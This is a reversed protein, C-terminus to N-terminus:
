AHSDKSKHIDECLGDIEEAISSPPSYAVLQWETQAIRYVDGILTRLLSKHGAVIVPPIKEGECFIRSREGEIRRKDTCQWQGAQPCVNGSQITTGLPAKQSLKKAVTADSPQRIDISPLLRDWLALAEDDTLTPKVKAKADDKVGSDLRIDLLPHLSNNAEGVSFFRFEHADTDNKYAPRRTLIEEGHWVGLQRPGERLMKISSFFNGLGLNAAHEKAQQRLRGPASDEQLYDHNRRAEISIRVDPIEKLYIGIASNEYEADVELFGGEVCMGMEAPIENESRSRLQGAIKNILSVNDESPMASSIYHIFLDNKMPIYSHISYSVSSKAGFIIKQGPIIGDVVEGIKPLKALSYDALYSKEVKIEQLRSNVLTSINSSQDPYFQINGDVSIPGYIVSADKPIKVRLRGFCVMRTHEFIKDIKKSAPMLKGERGNVIIIVLLIALIFILWAFFHSILRRMM